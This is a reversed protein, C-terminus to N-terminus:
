QADRDLTRTALLNRSCVRHRADPAAHRALVVGRKPRRRPLSCGLLRSLQASADSVHHAMAAATFCSSSSRHQPSLAATRLQPAASVAVSWVTREADSWIWTFRNGLKSIVTEAAERLLGRTTTESRLGTAESASLLIAYASAASSCTRATYDQMGHTPLNTPATSTRTRM